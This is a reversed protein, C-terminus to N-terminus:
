GNVEGQDMLKWLDLVEALSVEKNDIHLTVGSFSEPTIHLHRAPTVGVVINGVSDTMSWPYESPPCPPPPPVNMWPVFKLLQTPELWWAKWDGRFQIARDDITLFAPPKEEAFEFDYLALRKEEIGAKELQILLWDQMDYLGSPRSSRSSYIVLEFHEKAAEAWEFFGEVVDDYIEGTQWGKSYGHIVGDFDICLIPKKSM